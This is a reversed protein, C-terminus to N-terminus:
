RAASPHGRAGRVLPPVGASEKKPMPISQWRRRCTGSDVSGARIREIGGPCCRKASRPRYPCAPEKSPTTGGIGGASRQKRRGRLWSGTARRQGQHGLTEQRSVADSRSGAPKMFRSAASESAAPKRIRAREGLRSPAGRNPPSRAAPRRALRDSEQLVPRKKQAHCRWWRLDAQVVPDGEAGLSRRSRPSRRGSPTAIRGHRASGGCARARSDPLYRNPRAM